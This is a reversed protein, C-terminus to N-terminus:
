GVNAEEEKKGKQRDICVNQHEVATADVVDMSWSIAYDRNTRRRKCKIGYACMERKRGRDEQIHRSREKITDM